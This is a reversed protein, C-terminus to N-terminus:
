EAIFIFVTIALKHIELQEIDIRKPQFPGFRTVLGQSVQRLHYLSTYRTSNPHLRKCSHNPFLVLKKKLKKKEDNDNNEIM